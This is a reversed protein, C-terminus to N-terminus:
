AYPPDPLGDPHQRPRADITHTQFVNFWAHVEMGRKHAEQVAYALIM